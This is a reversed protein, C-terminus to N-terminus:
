IKAFEQTWYKNSVGFGVSNYDGVMNAYHGPSTKWGQMVAPVDQYNFAVNEAVGDWDIGYQSCRSGLTGEPDSHTMTNVSAQYQSHDQAMVNLNENISVPSRGVEARIANLEQLMQSKWDSTYSPTSSYSAAPQVPTKRLGPIQTYVLKTVRQAVTGLVGPRYSYASGVQSYDRRTQEPAM